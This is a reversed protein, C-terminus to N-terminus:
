RSGENTDAVVTQDVEPDPPPPDELDPEAAPDPPPPVHLVLQTSVTADGTSRFTLTVPGTPAGPRYTVMGSESISATAVGTPDGQRDIQASGQDLATGSLRIIVPLLTGGPDREMMAPTGPSDVKLTNAGDPLQLAKAASELSGSGFYFASIATVLTILATVIQGGLAVADSNPSARYTGSFGDDATGFEGDPGPDANRKIVPGPLAAVQETSLYNFSTERGSSALNGFVVNSFIVFIILLILAILARVTGSPLGLAKSADYLGLRAFVVVIALISGLFAVSGLVIQLPAALYMNSERLNWLAAVALAPAIFVLITVGSGPSVKVARWFQAAKGNSAVMGDSTQPQVPAPPGGSRSKSM